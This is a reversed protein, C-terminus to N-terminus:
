SKCNLQKIARTQEPSMYGLTGCSYGFETLTSQTIHRAVGLDIVCARGDPKIMINSPKLDRHVIRHSWMSEIASVVDYILNGIENESLVRAKIQKELVEGDILRTAVVQIQQDEIVISGAWLLEVINPHHLKSLAEIEREIRKLVQGPYYVKIAAGCGNVLGKYTIGQGGNALPAILNIGNPLLPSIIEIRSLKREMEDDSM